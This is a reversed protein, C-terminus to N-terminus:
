TPGDLLSSYHCTCRPAPFTAGHCTRRDEISEFLQCRDHKRAEDGILGVNRAHGVIVEHGLERLLRSVWPSHM